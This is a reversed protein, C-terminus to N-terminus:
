TYATGCRASTQCDSLSPHLFPFLFSLSVALSLPLSPPSLSLLLSLSFRMAPFFLHKFPMRIASQSISQEAPQDPPYNSAQSRTPQNALGEAQKNHDEESSALSNAPSIPQSVTHRSAAWRILHVALKRPRRTQCDSLSLSSLSISIAIPCRSLSLVRKHLTNSM